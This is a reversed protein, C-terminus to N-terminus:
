AQNLSPCDTTGWRNYSTNMFVSFYAYPQGSVINGSGDATGYGDLYSFYARPARQVLRDSRFNFYQRRSGAQGQYLPTSPSQTPDAPNMAFGQCHPVVTGSSTVDLYQIGGLFFVLCQDGELTTGDAAGTTGAWNLGTWPRNNTMRMLFTKSDADL